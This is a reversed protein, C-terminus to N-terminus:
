RKEGKMAITTAYDSIWMALVLVAIAPIGILMALGMLVGALIKMQLSQLGRKATRHTFGGRNGRVKRGPALFHGRAFRQSCVGAAGLIEQRRYQRFGVAQGRRAQSSSYSM